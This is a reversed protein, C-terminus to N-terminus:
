TVLPLHPPHLGGRDTVRRSSALPAPPPGLPADATHTLRALKM